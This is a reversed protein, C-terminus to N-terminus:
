YFFAILSGGINKELAEEHTMLGQNTSIIVTGYDRALLYRRLYKEIRNKKVYFRPKIAKCESIDGLIIELVKKKDKIKYSKIAGKKKMIKLIELLLNTYTKIEIVQKGARSANKIQNLADAVVDQSM